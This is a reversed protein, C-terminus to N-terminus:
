CLAQDLLTSEANYIWVEYGMLSPQIGVRIEGMKLLWKGM